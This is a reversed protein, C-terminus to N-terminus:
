CDIYQYRCQYVCGLWRCLTFANLGAGSDQEESGRREEEGRRLSFHRRKRQGEEPQRADSFNGRRGRVGEEASSRHCVGSSRRFREGEGRREVTAWRGYFFHAAGGSFVSPKQRCGHASLLPLRRELGRRRKREQAAGGGLAERVCRKKIM